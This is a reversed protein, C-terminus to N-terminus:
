IQTKSLEKVIMDTEEFESHLLHEAIASLQDRISRPWTKQKLDALADKAAKKDFSACADQIAKLKEQLYVNDGTIPEGEDGAQDEDLPELKDIVKKLEEIFEPLSSLILKINKDRGAQELKSAEMALDSEGVNALASKMAHVNILFTPIDDLRRCSNESIASLVTVAKKADRVFFEALQPDIALNHSGAAYLMNKQKRAEELAEPTQKDRIMRNLINNLQRIDIPKSIFDDFGNNLFMEAQGTLANATLAVIPKKYGLSRIIKVAEIGDMRPMMHDMFIIDYSAGSRIKEIADFGSLGTDITIGYPAILGRAVYLNTEVDDIILVKGYPMYEQTIQANRMKTTNKLNLKMLNEAHKIGIKESNVLIQPLRVTFVSGLGPTSEV